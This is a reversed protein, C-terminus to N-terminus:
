DLLTHLPDAMNAVIESPKRPVFFWLKRWQIRIFLNLFGDVEKEVIQTMGINKVRDLQVPIIGPDDAIVIM